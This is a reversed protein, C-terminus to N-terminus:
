LPIGEVTGFPLIALFLLPPLLLTVLWGRKHQM